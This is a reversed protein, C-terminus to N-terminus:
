VQEKFREGLKKLILRACKNIDGCGMTLILDGKEAHQAVYDACLEFNRDHDQEDAFYVSGAVKEGLDKDYIGYTNKERSGMIATIVCKDPISLAEAFDDLLMATRSFTFPQFVAWVTRFNMEMAAKLTVTLETPHHGYDDCVTIGNVEGYKDFRRKAGRFADLGEAIQQATAGSICAAAAAAVANLVNHIGPINLRAHTFLVGDHFIDFETLLGNKHEVNDAYWNNTHKYGFTTVPVTIQSVARMTNEDDGNALVSGAMNGFRVFSAIINDLTGFYDLHDADINNILAVDPHLRLFHDSFECAECIMTDSTGICGSGGIIPLKGGIYASIDLGAQKLIQTIMSTVTTKGHTGSVCVANGFWSTVSGLLDARELMPVGSEKSAILEPNDAMIASTYVILDAGSINEARQGIHVEIGMSRVAEVTETENN